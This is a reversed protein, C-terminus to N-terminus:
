SQLEHAYYLAIETKNSLLHRVRKVAYSFSIVQDKIAQDHENFSLDEKWDQPINEKLLDQLRNLECFQSCGPINLTIRNNKNSNKLFIEVGYTADDKNQLFELTGKVSLLFRRDQKTSIL